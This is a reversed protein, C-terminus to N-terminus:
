GVPGDGPALPVGPLDAPYGRASYYNSSIGLNGPKGEESTPALYQYLPAILQSGL